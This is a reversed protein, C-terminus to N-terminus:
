HTSPVPAPAVTVPALASGVEIGVKDGLENDAARGDSLGLALGLENNVLAAGVEIGVEDGLENDAARGDSLGM